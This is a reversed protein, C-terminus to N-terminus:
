DLRSVIELEVSALTGVNGAQNDEITLVWTGNVSEDGSFGLPVRELSLAGGPAAEGDFVMVQNSSPNTLTIVLEDPAPHDLSLRIIVDVDVTALGAVPVDWTSVAADAITEELTIDFVGYFTTPYCLGSTGRTMGGCLTTDDCLTSQDCTASSAAGSTACDVAATSLAPEFGSPSTPLPSVTAVVIAPAELLLTNCSPGPETVLATAALHGTTADYALQQLAMSTSPFPADGTSIVVVAVSAFDVSAPPQRGLLTQYEAASTLYTVPQEVSLRFDQFTDVVEFPVLQWAGGGDAGADSNASGTADPSGGDLDVGAAGGQAPTGGSGGGGHGANGGVAGAGAAGVAGATGGSSAGGGGAETGSGATGSASGGGSTVTGGGAAIGSGGAGGTSADVALNSPSSGEDPNTACAILELTVVFSLWASRRARFPRPTM